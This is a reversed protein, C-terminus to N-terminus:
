IIPTEEVAYGRTELVIAMAEASLGFVSRLPINGEVASDALLRSHERLTASRDCWETSMRAFPPRGFRQSVEHMLSERDVLLAIAFRNAQWEETAVTCGRNPFVSRYLSTLVAPDSHSFLSLNDNAALFLPRHLVWHGLEHALTFRYRGLDPSRKLSKTIEIKGPVPISRGLIEEGDSWGLDDEDSFSLGETESLYDCAIAELDVPYEQRRETLIARDLLDKAAAEVADPSLWPFKM